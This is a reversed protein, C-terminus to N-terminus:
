HRLTTEQHEMGRQELSPALKIAEAPCELTCIGCGRCLDPEIKAYGEEVIHPAGFPCLRVCTLCAVCKGPDVQAVLGLEAMREPTVLGRKIAEDRLGKIVDACRVGMPCVPICSQCQSCAWILDSKLLEEEMGLAVMHVVKRPDFEEVVKEVPCASSCSGCAYCLFLTSCGEHSTLDKPFAPSLKSALITM